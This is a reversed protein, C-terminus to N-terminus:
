AHSLSWNPQSVILAAEGLIDSVARLVQVIPKLCDILKRNGDRYARFHQAKEELVDLIRDASDCNQLTQAFPHTALDVGTERSYDSLAADFVYQFYSSSNATPSM